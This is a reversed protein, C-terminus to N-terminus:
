GLVVFSTIAAPSLAGDHSRAHRRSPRPDEVLGSENEAWAGIEVGTLGPIEGSQETLQYSVEVQVQESDM